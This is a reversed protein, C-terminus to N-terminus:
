SIKMNEKATTLFNFIFEEKKMDGAKELPKLKPARSTNGNSNYAGMGNVWEILNNRDRLSLDGWANKILEEAIMFNGGSVANRIHLLIDRDEGEIVSEMANSRDAIPFYSQGITTMITGDKKNREIGGGMSHILEEALAKKQEVIGSGYKEKNENFLKDLTSGDEGMLQVLNNYYTSRKQGTSLIIKAENIKDKKQASLWDSFLKSIRSM